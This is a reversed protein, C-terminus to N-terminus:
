LILDIVAAASAMVVAAARQPAVTRHKVAPLVPILPPLFFLFNNKSMVAEASNANWLRVPAPSLNKLNVDANAASINMYQCLFDGKDTSYKKVHSFICWEAM